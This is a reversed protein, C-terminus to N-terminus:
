VCGVPCWLHCLVSLLATANRQASHLSEWTVCHWGVKSKFAEMDPLQIKWLIRFPWQRNLRAPLLVGSVPLSSTPVVGESASVRSNTLFLGLWGGVFTRNQNM